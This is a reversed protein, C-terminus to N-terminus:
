PRIALVLFIQRHCASGPACDAFLEHAVDDHRPRVDSWPKQRFLGAVIVSSPAFFSRVQDPPILDLIFSDGDREESVRSGNFGCFNAVQEAIQLLLSQIRFNRSAWVRIVVNTPSKLWKMWVTGTLFDVNM